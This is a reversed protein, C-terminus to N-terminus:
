LAVYKFDCLVTLVHLVKLSELDSGVAAIHDQISSVRAQMNLQVTNSSFSLIFQSFFKRIQYIERYSTRM